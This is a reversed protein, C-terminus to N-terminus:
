TAVVVIVILALVHASARQACAVIVELWGSLAFRLFLRDAKTLSSVPPRDERRSNM